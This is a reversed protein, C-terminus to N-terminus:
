SPIYSRGAGQRTDGGIIDGHLETIVPQFHIQRELVIGQAFSLRVIIDRELFM